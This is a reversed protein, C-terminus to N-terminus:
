KTAQQIVLYVTAVQAGTTLVDRVTTWISRQPKMPVWVTDGAHIAGADEPKM